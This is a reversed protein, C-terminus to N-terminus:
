RAPVEALARTAVRAGLRLAMSVGRDDPYVHALSAHFLGPLGTEVPLRAMPGGVLPVPQAFPDRNVHMDVIWDREFAPNLARLAPVVADVLDDPTASWTPGDREVYHALYVLTRGGYRERPIFNTHEIIGVCGLGLRDTVNVWYYPSLPRSLELLVCVIGRYPITHTASAYASPLEVIRELILGSVCAIVVPAALRAPGDPGDLDVEWGDSTRRLSLVRTSTRLEVGDTVLRAAYADALVGLGGRLYGLRDGRAGRSGGRQRIRAVLWAMAVADAHPGFKAELLPRWLADYGRRGFWRPGEISVTTRDLRTRDPRFLQVGTAAALRIREPPSLPSFRLVDLPSDFRFTRGQHMVAMPGARWELRDALGLRDILDRTERDQPFIHHYYPEISEGTVRISRALGGVGPAAELVAVSRGRRRLADAAGLGAMGAGIVVVDVPHDGPTEGSAAQTQTAPERV